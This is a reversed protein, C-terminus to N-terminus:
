RAFPLSRPGDNVLNPDLFAWAPIGSCAVQPEGCSSALCEACATSLPTTCPSLCKSAGCASFDYWCTGCAETIGVDNQMCLVAEAKSLLHSLFCTQVADILTSGDNKYVALDARNGCGGRAATRVPIVPSYDQVSEDVAPLYGDHVIIQVHYLTDPLLHGVVHTQNPTSHLPELATSNTWWDDVAVVYPDAIRTSIIMREWCLSFADSSVGTVTANVGKRLSRQPADGAYPCTSSNLPVSPVGGSNRASASARAVAQRELVWGAAAAGIAAVNVLASMALLCVLRGRSCCGSSDAHVRPVVGVGNGASADMTGYGGDGGFDEEEFVSAKPVTSSSLLSSDVSFSGSLRESESSAGGNGGERYSSDEGRGFADSTAASRGSQKREGGGGLLQQSDMKFLYSNRRSLLFFNVRGSNSARVSMSTLLTSM